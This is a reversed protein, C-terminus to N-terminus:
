IHYSGFEENLNEGLLICIKLKEILCHVYMLDMVVQVTNSLYRIRLTVLLMM